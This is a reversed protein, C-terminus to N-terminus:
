MSTIGFGMNPFSASMIMDAAFTLIFIFALIEKTHTSINNYKKALAPLLIYVFVCGAAGFGLLGGLFIRGNLNFPLDSYDWWRMNYILEMLWSTFYEALGCAATSLVFYLVPRNGVAKKLGVMLLCGIGYIPLWPGHLMGRNVFAADAVLHLLVEYIWGIVAGTMFLLSCDAFIRRVTMKQNEYTNM